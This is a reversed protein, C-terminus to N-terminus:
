PAIINTLARRYTAYRFNHLQQRNYATIAFTLTDRVSAVFRACCRTTRALAAVYPRLNPM